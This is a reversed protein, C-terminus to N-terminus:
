RRRTREDDNIKPEYGTEEIVKKIEDELSVDDAQGEQPVKVGLVELCSNRERVLKHYNKVAGQLNESLLKMRENLMKMFSKKQDKADKNERADAPLPTEAPLQGNRMDESIPALGDHGGTRAEADSKGYSYENEENLSHGNSYPNKEDSTGPDNGNVLVGPETSLRSDGYGSPYFLQAQTVNCFM